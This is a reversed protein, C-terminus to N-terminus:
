NVRLRPDREDPDRPRPPPPKKKATDQKKAEPKRLAALTKKAQSQVKADKSSAAATAAPLVAPDLDGIAEMARLALIRTAAPAAEDAAITAIAPLAAKADRGVRRLVELARNRGEARDGVLAPELAAALPAGVTPLRETLEDLVTHTKQTEDTFSLQLAPADRTLADVIAPLAADGLARLAKWAWLRVSRDPDALAALLPDTARPDRIVGLARTAATRVRPHDDRLLEVLDWLAEAGGEKMEALRLAAARRVRHDVHRTLASAERVDASRLARLSAEVEDLVADREALRPPPLPEDPSRECGCACAAALALAGASLAGRLDRRRHHARLRAM